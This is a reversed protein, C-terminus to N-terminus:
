LDVNSYILGIFCVQNAQHWTVSIKPDECIQWPKYKADPQTTMM